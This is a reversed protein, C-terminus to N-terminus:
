QIKLTSLAILALMAGIIWFRIVVKTENWGSLEFHHHIPAMKFVRKKKWKYYGVQIMVSLAEVVFVGGVIVLLLEKKLMLALVGIIGGLALSGTDGMFVQAKHANFWLFGLGAGVFAACFVTLEGAQSIFAINLYETARANGSVYALVAFAIGVFVLLGIALGDLGDTLNVANSTGVIVFMGFILYIYPIFIPINLFPLEIFFSFSSMDYIPQEIFPIYVPILNQSQYSMIVDLPLYGGNEMFLKLEYPLRSIHEQYIIQSIFFVIIGAFSFQLLLKMRGSMGDSSKLILKKYDDVFGIAGFALTAFLLLWIFGFDLRGWFLTTIIIIGLILIGGMTPTGKKDGHDPGLERIPQNAKKARLYLILPPGILFSLILATIASYASRFTIYQFIRFFSLDGDQFLPYLYKYFLEYAM